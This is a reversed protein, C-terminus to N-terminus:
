ASRAEGAAMEQQLAAQLLLLLGLQNVPQQILMGVVDHVDVLHNSLVLCCCLLVAVAQLLLAEVLLPTDAAAAAVLGSAAAAAAGAAPAAAAPSAAAAAAAPAVAAAPTPAAPWSPAAAPTAAAWLPALLRSKEPLLITCAARQGSLQKM